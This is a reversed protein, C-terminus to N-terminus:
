RIRRGDWDEPGLERSQARGGSPLGDAQAASIAGRHQRTGTVHCVKERNAHDVSNPLPPCCAACSRSRLQTSQLACSAAAFSMQVALFELLWALHSVLRAPASPPLSADHGPALVSCGRAACGLDASAFTHQPM